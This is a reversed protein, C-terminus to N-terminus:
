KLRVAVRPPPNNQSLIVLQLDGSSSKLCLISKFSLTRSSNRLYSLVKVKQWLEYSDWKVVSYNINHMKYIHINALEFYQSPVDKIQM